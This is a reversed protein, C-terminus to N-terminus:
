DWPNEGTIEVYIKKLRTVKEPILEKLTKVHMDAPVPIQLAYVLNEIEDILKGLDEKQEETIM